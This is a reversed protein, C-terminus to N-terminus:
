FISRRRVMQLVAVTLCIAGLMWRVATFEALPYCLICVAGVCLAGGAFWQAPYNRDGLWFRAVSFHFLFLAVYSLATAAAAADMGLTPVLALCLAINLAAAGLTGVAISRTEMKYFEYNVPFSYLFICYQGFVLPPLLRTAAWYAETSLIKLIEPAMFAFAISGLTFLSFYNCFHSRKLRDSTKGAIDDYMFPVFANNLANYIANMLSVVTVAISYIGAASNGQYQQIAIKGTQALVLQSLGHLILPLTLALCFHWYSLKFQARKRALALFLGIGILLNPVTLGLVRGLYAERSFVGLLILAMSLLTTSACLGVSMRFNKQPERKFIFRMSFLSIVFAGFSQLAMAIVLLEDMALLQSLPEVFIAILTLIVAFSALGMLLISWHYSDQEEQELNAYASGISGDAKLGVFITCIQVWATYINVIGFGDTDLLRTFIPITIFNIGAVLITSAINYLAMKNESVQKKKVLSM